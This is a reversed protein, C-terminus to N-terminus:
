CNSWIKSFSSNKISIWTRNNGFIANVHLAILKWTWGVDKGRAQVLKVAYDRETMIGFETRKKAGLFPIQGRRLTSTRGGKLGAASLDQRSLAFLGKGNRRDNKAREQAATSRHRNNLEKKEAKFILKRLAVGAASAGTKRTLHPLYESALQLHTLGRKFEDVIEPRARALLRGERQAVKMAAIQEKTM